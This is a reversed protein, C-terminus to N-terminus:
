PPPPATSRTRRSRPRPASSPARGRPWGAPRARSTPSPWGNPAPSPDASGARTGSALLFTAGEATREVRRAIRSPFALAIVLGVDDITGRAPADALFRQLRSAEQEWRRADPGRGNRLATIAAAVDGDPVRLDGSLLAVTEAALRSGVVGSGEILARALRPDVPIRALARGEATVRGDDDIAGLDHLVGQADALADAPLPDLLRLGAGGPAGWCALVLAADVLDATAIEPAPRTPAAAFTREDLCRIVTGPGQRTARGARQVASARSAGATVLGSM